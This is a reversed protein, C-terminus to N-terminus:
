VGHEMNRFTPEMIEEQLSFNLNKIRRNNYKAM